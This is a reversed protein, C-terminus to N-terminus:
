RGSRKTAKRWNLGHVASGYPPRHSPPWRALRSHVMEVYFNFFNQSPPVVREAFAERHFPFSGEEGAGDSGTALWHPDVRTKVAYLYTHALPQKLLKRTVILPRAPPPPITAPLWRSFPMEARETVAAVLICLWQITYSKNNTTHM